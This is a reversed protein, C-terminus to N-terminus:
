LQDVNDDTISVLTMYATLNDEDDDDEDESDDDTTQLIQGNDVQVHTSIHNTLEDHLIGLAPGEHKGEIKSGSFGDLRFLSQFKLRHQNNVLTRQQYLRQIQFSIHPDTEALDRARTQLFLEEDRMFTRLRPIEVNLRKIEERARCIKFYTNM